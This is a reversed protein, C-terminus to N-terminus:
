AETQTSTGDMMDCENAIKLSEAGGTGQPSRNLEGIGDLVDDAQASIGINDCGVLPTTRQPAADIQTRIWKM